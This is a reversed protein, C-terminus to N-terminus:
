LTQLFSWKRLIKLLSADEFHIGQHLQLYVTPKAQNMKFIKRIICKWVKM